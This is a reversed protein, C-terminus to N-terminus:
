FKAGLESAKKKAALYSSESTMSELFRKINPYEEENVYKGQMTMELPSCILIDAGSLKGGVLYGDNQAIESEIYDLQNKLEGKSYLDSIKTAVKGMVYSIPFPIPAAKIKQMLFEIMLPPQLSGEVYHLYYKIREAKILDENTLVGNKDFHEIIYQFVYGSETLMTTQGTKVDELVVIPTRGLPHVKKLEEPARGEKTRFYPIIEYELNLHEFLQIVRFARSENLWYIKIKTDSMLNFTRTVSYSASVKEKLLYFPHMRM